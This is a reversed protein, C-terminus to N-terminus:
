TLTATNMTVAREDLHFRCHKSQESWTAGAARHSGAAAYPIRKFIRVAFEGSEEYAPGDRAESAHKREFRVATMAIRMNISRMKSCARAFCEVATESEATQRPARM